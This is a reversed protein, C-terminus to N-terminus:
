GRVAELVSETKPGLRENLRTTIETLAGKEEEEVTFFMGFLGGSARAVSHAMKTLDGKASEAQDAPLNAILAKIYTLAADCLDQSPAEKLLAEFADGIETGPLIGCRAAEKRLLAEEAAQVAGDAWAVQFLPVLHMLRVTDATVGVAALEALVEDDKVDATEALAEAGEEIQLRHRLKGLLEQSKKFFHEDENARILSRLPNHDAM